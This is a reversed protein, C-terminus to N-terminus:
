DEKKLTVYEASRNDQGYLVKFMYKGLSKAKNDYAETNKAEYTQKAKRILVKTEKRSVIRQGSHVEGQVSGDPALVKMVPINSDESEETLGEVIDGEEISDDPNIELVWKTNPCSELTDQDIDERITNKLVEGEESIFIQSLPIKTDQMTMSVEQPTNWVFLMGKEEPLKEINRLGRTKDEETSAVIVKYEKNNISITKKEMKGGEKFKQTIYKSDIDGAVTITYPPNIVKWRQKIDEEKDKSNFKKIIEIYESLSKAGICEPNDIIKLKDYDSKPINIQLTVGEDNAYGHKKRYAGIGDAMRKSGLYVVKPIKNVKDAIEKHTLNNKNISYSAKIGFKLINDLASKPCNHYLTIIKNEM